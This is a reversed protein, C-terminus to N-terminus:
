KCGNGLVELWKWDNWCNIAMGLGKGDNGAMQLCKWRNGAIGTMMGDNWFEMIGDIRSKNNRCEIM